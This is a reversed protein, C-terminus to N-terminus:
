KRKISSSYYKLRKKNKTWDCNKCKYVINSIRALDIFLEKQGKQADVKYDGKVSLKSSRHPYKYRYAGSRFTNNSSNDKNLENINNYPLKINNVEYINLQSKGKSIPIKQKTKPYRLILSSYKKYMTLSSCKFLNKKIKPLKTRFDNNFDAPTKIDNLSFFNYKSINNMNHINNSDKKMQNLLNLYKSTKPKVLPPTSIFLEDNKSDESFSSDNICQTGKSSFPPENYDNNKEPKIVLKISTKKKSQHYKPKISEYMFTSNNKIQSSSKNSKDNIESKEKNILKKKFITKYFLNTSSTSENKDSTENEFQSLSKDKVLEKLQENSFDIKPKLNTINIKLPIKKLYDNQGGTFDVNMFHPNPYFSPKSHNFMSHKDISLSKLIEM